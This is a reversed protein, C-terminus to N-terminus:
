VKELENIVHQALSLRLALQRGTYLYKGSDYQDEATWSKYATAPVPYTYNGSWHEWSEFISERLKRPIERLDCSYCLGIDSIPVTKTAMFEKLKTVIQETLLKNM